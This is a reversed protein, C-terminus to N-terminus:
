LYFNDLHDEVKVMSDPNFKINMREAWKPMKYLIYFNQIIFVYEISIIRIMYLQPICVCYMLEEVNIM